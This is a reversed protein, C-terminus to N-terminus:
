LVPVGFRVRWASPAYARQTTATSNRSHAQYVALTPFRALCVPSCLLEDVAVAPRRPLFCQRRQSALRGPLTFRCSEVTRAWQLCAFRRSLNAAM